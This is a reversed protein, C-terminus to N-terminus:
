CYCKATVFYKHINRRKQHYIRVEMIGNYKSQTNFIILMVKQTSYM